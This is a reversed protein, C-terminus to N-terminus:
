GNLSRSIKIVIQMCDNTSDDVFFHTKLIELTARFFERRFSMHKKPVVYMTIYKVHQFRWGYLLTYGGFLPSHMTSGSQHKIEKCCPQHRLTYEVNYWITCCTDLLPSFTAGYVVSLVEDNKVKNIQNKYISLYIYLSLYISLSPAIEFWSLSISAYCM